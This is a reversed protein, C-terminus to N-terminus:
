ASARMQTAVRAAARELAARLAAPRVPKSMYDDMGAELCRGRDDQMANATLAVIHLDHGPLPAQARLQRTAELGDMDPMQVDMLVVDYPRRRVADLVELGSAVVDARYGMKALLRVAVRQNVVNDEAVLIRLPARDALRDHDIAPDISTPLTAAVAHVERTAITFGFTSGRGEESEVWMRGGMLTTLRTSIALGLGTGGYQRTTSADVQSFSKFLRDLRDAPIGIGTDRVQFELLLEDGVATGARCVTVDVRGQPTFKVANTVLNVLVQRLRTIDGIVARPVDDAITRGITVPKGGATAAVLDVAEDVCQALAFPQQELELRGSDIKSFDLIDNILILLTDGSTRVIEVADRQEPSLATDLLLGTMGIVANMPTRIEHSMNALFEGKARAADEAAERAADAAVRAVELAAEARRREAVEQQLERTRADVRAELDRRRATLHRVRLRHAGGIGALLLGAAVFPFWPQQHFRPALTLAFSAGEENWVGDSNAAIVRFRYTGPPLNTYFAVRRTGADIWEKDFGELRYRFRVHEPDVYSLATYHFELDGGGPPLRSGDSLPVPERDRLLSQLRVPPALTNTTLHRPDIAAAGRITPFWLRGDRARIAAPASGGNCEASRLGDAVGYVTSQIARRGSALRRAIQTPSITWIGKNSTLWLRGNGDDLVHFVTNDFLGDDVTYFLAAHATVHVLGRGITGLWLDGNAEEHIAAVSSGDLTTGRKVDTVTQGAVRKLGAGYTGVLLTGDRAERAALIHTTRGGAGLPVRTLTDGDLRSLGRSTGVWVRGARDEVLVKVYEDELRWTRFPRSAGPAMAALTERTGVLMTGDRRELVALVDDGQFYRPLKTGAALRGAPVRSVGADEGGIWIARDRAEFISWVYNPLGEPEGFLTFKGDRLQRVGDGLSGVWLSGERDEFLAQLSDTNSHRAFSLTDFRGDVFRGLGRGGTALWLSGQRDELVRYVSPQATVSIDLPHARRTEGDIELLGASMTGVWLRGRRDEIVDLITGSTARWQSLAPQIRGDRLVALGKDTGLWLSGDAREVIARVSADPLGDATSYAGVKGNRIVHLGGNASGVWIAGDRAAHLTVVMLAGIDPGGVNSFVGDKYRAVGGGYIGIWLTGDRTVALRNIFSGHLAPTNRADFVTFTAGDFRALGDQTAIWLYGDPTQVIDTVTNQPLGDDSTWTRLVYQSLAHGPVLAAALSATCLLLVAALFVFFLFPQATSLSSFYM